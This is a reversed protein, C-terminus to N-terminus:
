SADFEAPSGADMADVWWHDSGISACSVYVRFGGDPRTILAPRELSQVGFEAKNFVAQTEFEIGDPSSAIVLGYGRDGEASRMRYALYYTDDVKVASPAGAWNGRGEGPPSIVVVSSEVDPLVIDPSPPQSM